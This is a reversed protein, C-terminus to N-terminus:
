IEVTELLLAPESLMRMKSADVGKESSRAAQVAKCLRIEAISVREARDVFEIYMGSIAALMGEAAELLETEM